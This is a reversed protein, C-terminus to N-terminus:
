TLGPSGEIEIMTASTIVWAKQTVLVLKPCFTASVDRVQEMARTSLKQSDEPSKLVVKAFEDQTGMYIDNGLRAMVKSYEIRYLISNQFGNQNMIQVM